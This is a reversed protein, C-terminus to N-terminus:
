QLHPPDACSAEAGGPVQQGRGRHVSEGAWRRVKQELASYVEPFPMPTPNAGLASFTGIFLPSQVVRLKLGQIDEMKTIPRKSNTINRFGLEWFALGVLNKEALKELLTVVPTGEDLFVRRYGGSAAFSVARELREVAAKKDGAARQCLAQLVHIAILSGNCGDNRAVRELRDLTIAARSPHHQALLLRAHTLSEYESPPGQLNHATTLTRAAENV